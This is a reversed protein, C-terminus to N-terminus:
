IVKTEAGMKQISKRQACLLNIERLMQECIQQFRNTLLQFFCNSLRVCVYVSARVSPTLSIHLPIFFFHFTRKASAANHTILLCHFTGKMHIQDKEGKGLYDM